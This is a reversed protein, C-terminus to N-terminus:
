KTKSVTLHNLVVLPAVTMAAIVPVVEVDVKQITAAAGVVVAVALIAVVPVQLEAAVSM